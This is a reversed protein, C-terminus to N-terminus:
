TKRDNSPVDCIPEVDRMQLKPDPMKGNLQTLEVLTYVKYTLLIPEQEHVHTKNASVRIFLDSSSIPAGASRMGNSAPEDDDQHFKTGGSSNGKGGSGVVTVKVAQSTLKSNGVNIHAPPITYTGNKSGMLMYTYTISSSGSAHGNVINYSEQQSVSPGYVIELADPINGLQLKGDVDKTNITYQLRFTEGAEVKSPASVSIHQAMTTTAVTLLLLLYTYKKM